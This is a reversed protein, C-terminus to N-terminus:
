PKFKSLARMWDYVYQINETDTSIVHAKGVDSQTFTTEGNDAISLIGKRSCNFHSEGLVAHIVVEADWWYQGLDGIAWEDYRSYVQYMPHEPQWAYDALVEDHNSPYKMGEELPLLCLDTPWNELVKKALPVDGGVNYEITLLEQKGEETQTRLPVPTFCGGTAELRKVKKGILESGSLPSYEDPASDLLMGLNSFKGICVIVVSQDEAGALLKRYLKWAPLRESIPIGTFPFLPSGDAKLSDVLQFYPVMLFLDEEGPLFGLPVDDAKFFHLFRDALERAKEVQVSTMVGVVNCKKQQQMYFLAQMALIDDNSNGLDTDLIVNISESEMNNDTM